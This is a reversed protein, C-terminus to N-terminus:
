RFKDPSKGSDAIRSGFDVKASEISGKMMWNIDQALTAKESGVIGVLDDFSLEGELYRELALSKFTESRFNRDM